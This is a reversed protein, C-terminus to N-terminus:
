RHGGRGGAVVIQEYFVDSAVLKSFASHQRRAHARMVSRDNEFEEIVTVDDYIALVDPIHGNAIPPRPWGKTDAFVMAGSRVHDEASNRIARVEPDERLYQIGKYGLYLAGAGLAVKLWAPVGEESRPQPVRIDGAMMMTHPPDELKVWHNAPVRGRSIADVIQWDPFTVSSWRQERPVFVFYNM